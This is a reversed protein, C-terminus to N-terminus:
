LPELTWRGDALDLSGAPVWVQRSGGPLYGNGDSSRQPGAVGRWAAIRRAIELVVVGHDGNWENRLAYDRRLSDADVPREEIWFPGNAWQGSGVVRFLRQGVDLWVPSVTGDFTVLIHPPIAPWSSPDQDPLFNSLTVRTPPPSGPIALQETELSPERLFKYDTRMLQRAPNLLEIVGTTPPPVVADESVAPTM